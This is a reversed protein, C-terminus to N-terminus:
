RRATVHTADAPGRRPTSQPAAPGPPAHPPGPSRTPDTPGDFALVGLDLTKGSEVALGRRVFPRQPQRDVILMCACPAHDIQFRGDATTTVPPRVMEAPGGDDRAVVVRVGGAPKGAADVLSGTVTGNASLAIHVEATAGPAVAVQGLGGGLLSEVYVTYSGPNVHDFAFVGQTFSRDAMTPGRLSASFTAVQGEPGTVTGSLTSVGHTKLNVTANPVVNAERARLQGRQGEAIVTHKLHFLGTLEYRGAADTLVPAPAPDSGAPGVEVMSSSADINMLDLASLEPYASVWADRLPSGDPDTVTGAIVGNPIEVVLEVGAKHENAALAIRPLPKHPQRPKGRDLVEFSYEGPSLGTLEFAGSADTLTQVGSTVIGESMRLRGGPSGSDLAATVEPANAIVSLGPVPTGDGDVVRGAVSAGPRVPLVADPMDAAVLVHQQGEDGSACRAVLNAPGTDLPGLSFEGDPGTSVDTALALSSGVAVDIEHQVHCAQRPEVRGKIMLGHQVHVVVGDVDEDALWVSTGSAHLYVKSSASLVYSDPRMGAMTFSGADDATVTARSGRGVASVDVNPAPAGTEDIVHGRIVPRVGIRLEVGSVQEAVALGVHTTDRSYRPSAAADLQWDGPKLGTIRFRGDAGATTRHEPSFLVGPALRARVNAGAVPEHTQEDKVVGEVVSGPVLLFNAVAGAPGIEIRRIQSAYDSSTVSLLLSGEAVTMHYTGDSATVTTSVADDPAAIRTLRAAEIQAGAVPGGSTDSVLGRLTRGGSILHLTLRDASGATVRRVPLAGPLHGDASASIRWSGPELQEAHAVGDAATRLVVIEGAKPMLRVVANGLPGREDSVIITLSAAEAARAHSNTVAARPAGSVGDRPIAASRVPDTEGSRMWWWGAILALLVLCPAVLLALRTVRSTGAKMM